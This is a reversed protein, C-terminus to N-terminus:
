EGAPGGQAGDRVRRGGRQRGLQEMIQQRQQPTLSQFAERRQEPTMSKLKEADFPLADPAQKSDAPQTSSGAVPTPTQLLADSIAEQAVSSASLPPSLLVQQGAKLGELIHIVRNNDLGIRVPTIMPGKIGALYVVPTGEVRVVSQVPVYLADPYQEVIIEAHCSMGPRLSDHEGDIFVEASYVKLDPNLWASQADPLLGIKGVRGWFVVGPVADVTVRVPMDQRVKRLSAEHIRTEVVMANDTPLYILEQRERVQQGEELPESRRRTQGTTAYVVMGDAPAYIRCKEIQTVTKELNAKQREYESERATLEAQAQIIDASAKRKIRELAQNAQELDSNLQDLTRQHTYDMLLQLDTNALSLNIQARKTALEDAQLENRTIYDKEALKHSWDLRDQARELEERAINIDAQAKQLARPHDGEIYKKLDLEAFKCALEAKEIDSQAQSQTVALNERARIYSAEANMVTIQQQTKNDELKSSDLEVLLDGKRVSTGEPILFLITTTGEVESKILMRQRNRITGSETVSILM